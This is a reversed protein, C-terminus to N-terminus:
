KCEYGGSVAADVMNDYEDESGQDKCITYTPEATKTCTKCQCSALFGIVGISLLIFKGYKKM